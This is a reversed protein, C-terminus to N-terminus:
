IACNLSSGMIVNEGDKQLKRERKCVFIRRRVGNDFAKLRREERHSFSRRPLFPKSFLQM